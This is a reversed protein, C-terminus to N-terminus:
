DVPLYAHVRPFELDGLGIRLMQVRLSGQPVNVFDIVHLAEETLDEPSEAQVSAWLEAFRPLGSLQELLGLFWPERSSFRNDRRFSLLDRRAVLEWNPNGTGLLRYMPSAPDFVLHLVNRAGVPLARLQDANLGLLAFLHSNVGQIGWDRTVLVAPLPLTELTQHGLRLAEELAPGSLFPEIPLYGAAVLLRNREPLSAEFYDAVQMVVARRPVRRVVGRLLAKYSAYVVDCVEDRSWDKSWANPISGQRRQELLAETTAAFDRCEPATRELVEQLNRM